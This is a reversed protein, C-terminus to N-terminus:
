DHNHRYVTTHPGFVRELVEPTLIDVPLGECVMKQNLCIVRDAQRYVIDLDHSIIVVSLKEKEVFGSILRRVKEEGHIDVGSAPEDLFLVDPNGALAYAILVRQLEGGSLEGVLKKLAQGLGVSDLLKLIKEDSAKRGWWFPLEEMRLLFMEEVTIPFNREFDLRQPVYGFRLGSKWSVTGRYPILGLLAKVLTTKGAGNPGIVALIEGEKLKLSIDDLVDYAGIRAGLHHVDLLTNM